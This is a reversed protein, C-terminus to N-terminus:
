PVTRSRAIVIGRMPAIQGGHRSGRRRIQNVRAPKGHGARGGPEDQRSKGLGARTVSAGLNKGSIRRSKWHVKNKLLDEIAGRVKRLRNLNM